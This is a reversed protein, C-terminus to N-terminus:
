SRLARVLHEVVYEQEDDTMGSYIPLLMTDRAALETVPLRWRAGNRRYAPELHIAMVGRRTAIGVELLERMVEDRTRGSEVGERDIRVMYSQYTHPADPTSLPLALGPVDALAAAYRAAIRRREGLMFELRTMQAIGVAAHLDSLRYNYGVEPYEELVVDRARHRALDSVSMAHARLTRLRAALADDNTTIMGGEGTTIVKRPHFSFCAPSESGGVRQGRYTAGLAPAADEVILLGHARAVTQIRDLDAALGVQHVPMIARTRPTIAPAIGRPDLNYSRPDVDVFVPTAGAHQVANATAIFSLSPVIVEDGPGIGLAVLALHLATTGNSTAVAHQAGVYRAVVQEFEAVLPGQAVWGSRLARALAAEEEQGFFPRTVPITMTAVAGM